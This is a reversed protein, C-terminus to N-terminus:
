DGLFLVDQTGFGDSFEGVLAAEPNAAADHPVLLCQAITLISLLILCFIAISLVIKINKM